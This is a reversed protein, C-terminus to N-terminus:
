GRLMFLKVRVFDRTNVQTVIEYSSAALEIPWEM